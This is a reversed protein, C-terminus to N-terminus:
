TVSVPQIISGHIYQFMVVVFIKEDVDIFYSLFYWRCMWCVSCCVGLSPVEKYINGVWGQTNIPFFRECRLQPPFNHYTPALLPRFHSLAATYLERYQLWSLYLHFSGSLDKIPLFMREIVSQGILVLYCWKTTSSLAFSGRFVRSAIIWKHAVRTM